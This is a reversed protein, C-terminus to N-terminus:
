ATHSTTCLASRILRMKGITDAYADSIPRANIPLLIRSSSTADTQYWLKLPYVPFAHVQRAHVHPCLVQVWREVEANERDVRATDHAM